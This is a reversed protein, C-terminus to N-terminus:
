KRDYVDDRSNILIKGMKYGKKIKKLQRQAIKEQQKESSKM